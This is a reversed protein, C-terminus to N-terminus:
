SGYIDEFRKSAEVVVTGRVGLPKTVAKYEDPLVTRYLFEDNKNPWPIGQPRKPDYFHTHTDIVRLDSM